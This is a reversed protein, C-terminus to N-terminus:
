IQLATTCSSRNVYAMRSTQASIIKGLAINGHLDQGNITECIESLKVIDM